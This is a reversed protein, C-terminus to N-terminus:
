RTAHLSIAEGPAPSKRERAPQIFARPQIEENNKM